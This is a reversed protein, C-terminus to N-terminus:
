EIQLGITLLSLRLRKKREVFLVALEASEQKEISWFLPFWSRNFDAQSISALARLATTLL